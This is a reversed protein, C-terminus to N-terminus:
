TALRWPARSMGFAWQITCLSDGKAFTDRLGLHLAEFLGTRLALMEVVNVSCLGDPVSFCIITKVKSDRVLWGAGTNRPNGVANGDLNLKLFGMLPPSRQPLSHILSSSFM